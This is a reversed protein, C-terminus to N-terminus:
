FHTSSHSPGLLSEPSGLLLSWLGQSSLLPLAVHLSQPPAPNFSKHLNMCIAYFAPFIGGCGTSSVHPSPSSSPSPSPRLDDPFTSIATHLCLPPHSLAWHICAELQVRLSEWRGGSSRRNGPERLAAQDKRAMRGPKDELLVPDTPVSPQGLGASNMAQVRFMYQKGPQLDSVQPYSFLAQPCSLQVRSSM